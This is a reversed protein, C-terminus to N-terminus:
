SSRGVGEVEASSGCRGRVADEVYSEADLALRDGDISSPAGVLGLILEFVPLAL